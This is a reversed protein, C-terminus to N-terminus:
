LHTEASIKLVPEVEPIHFYAHSAEFDGENIKVRTHMQMINQNDVEVAFAYRCEQCEIIRLGRPYKVKSMLLTHEKTM